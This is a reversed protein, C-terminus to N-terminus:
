VRGKFDEYYKFVNNDPLGDSERVFAVELGDFRVLGKDTLIWVDGKEDFFSAYTENSPLGNKTTLAEEIQFDQGFLMSSVVCSFAFFLLRIPLNMRKM